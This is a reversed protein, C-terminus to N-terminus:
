RCCPWFGFVTRRRRTLRMFCSSAAVTRRRFARWYRESTAAGIAPAVNSNTTNVLRCTTHFDGEEKKKAEAAAREAEEADVIARDPYLDHLFVFNLVCTLRCPKNLM